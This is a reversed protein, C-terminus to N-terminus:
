PAPETLYVEWIEAPGNCEIKVLDSLMELKWFALNGPFLLGRFPREWGRLSFVSLTLLLAARNNGDDGVLIQRPKRKLMQQERIPEPLANFRIRKRRRLNQELM